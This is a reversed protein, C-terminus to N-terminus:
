KNKKEVWYTNKDLNIVLRWVQGSLRAQYDLQRNLAMFQRLTHKIHNERRKMFSISSGTLGVVIVLAFLVEILTLGKRNIVQHPLIRKYKTKLKIKTTM